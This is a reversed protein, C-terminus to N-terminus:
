AANRAQQRAWGIGGDRYSPGWIASVDQRIFDDLNVQGARYAEGGRKGLVEDQVDAPQKALWESGTERQWPVGSVSAVCSCRCNVHQRMFREELPFIQGDLALCAACSRASKAAVWIWGDLIDTNEQYTRIAATRYARLMETRAITYTRAFAQDTAATLANAVIRPHQGLAIADSLMRRAMNAVDPGIADFLRQLPAGDVTAGILSEVAYPSVQVWGQAIRAVDAPAVQVLALARSHEGAMAVLRRQSETLHLNEIRGIAAIEEYLQTELIRWRELQFIRWPSVDDLALLELEVLEILPRLRRLADAYAQILRQRAIADQRIVAARFRDIAADLEAM